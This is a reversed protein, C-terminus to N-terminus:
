RSRSRSRSRALESRKHQGLVLTASGGASSDEKGSGSMDSTSEAVDMEDRDDGHAGCLVSGDAVSLFNLSIPDPPKLIPEGQEAPLAWCMLAFLVAGLVSTTMANGAASCIM